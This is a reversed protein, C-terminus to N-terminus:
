QYQPADEVLEKEVAVKREQAAASSVSESMRLAEEIDRAVRRAEERIRGLEEVEARVNGSLGGLVGIILGGKGSQRALYTDLTRTLDQDLIQVRYSLKPLLSAPEFPTSLLRQLRTRYTYLQYKIDEDAM